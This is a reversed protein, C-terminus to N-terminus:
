ELFIPTLIICEFSIHSQQMFFVNMDVSVTNFYRHLIPSYFLACVLYLVNKKEALAVLSRGNQRVVFLVQVLKSPLLYICM